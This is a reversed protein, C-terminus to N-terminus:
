RPVKSARSHQEHRDSPSERGAGCYAIGKFIYVIRGYSMFIDIQRNNKNDPQSIIKYM